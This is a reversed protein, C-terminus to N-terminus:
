RAQSVGGITAVAVYQVGNIYAAHVDNSNRDVLGSGAYDEDWGDVINRQAIGADQSDSDWTLHGIGNHKFMRIEDNIFDEVMFFPQGNKNSIYVEGNLAYVGTSIANYTNDWYGTVSNYGGTGIDKRFSM